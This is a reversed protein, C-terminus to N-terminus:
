TDIIVEALWGDPTPEVKLRHYTVAKLELEVLHRAADAPEGWASAEMAMDNVTAQFRCFLMRETHFTYLLEALWDHLLDEYSEARLQFRRAQQPRVRAINELMAAFMAEAAEALLTPLDPALIRLGLDATHEFIEYMIRCAETRSPIHPRNIYDVRPLVIHKQASFAANRGPRLINAMSQSV